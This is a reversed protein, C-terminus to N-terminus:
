TYQKVADLMIKRIWAPALPADYALKDPKEKALIDNVKKIISPTVNDKGMARLAQIVLGSIKGKVALNKPTTRKFKISSRGVKIDRPAGDTLYVANMPVQTSLGLKNLAQVGTPIIRAKDRRAIAEAIEELSPYLVGLIDDVKPYLYIGHALRILFGKKELRFLALRVAESTGLESFDEPFLIKGRKHKSVYDIIKNEVSSV